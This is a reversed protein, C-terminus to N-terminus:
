GEAPVCRPLWTGHIEVHREGEGCRVGGTCYMLVKRGELREANDKVWRPLDSFQRLQPDLLEM